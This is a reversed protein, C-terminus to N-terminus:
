HVHPSSWMGLKKSFADLDFGSNLRDWEIVESVSSLVTEGFLSKCPRKSASDSVWDEWTLDQEDEEEESSSEPDRSDSASGLNPSDDEALFHRSM